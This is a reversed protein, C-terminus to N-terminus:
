RRKRKSSKGAGKTSKSPPRKEDKPAFPITPPANELSALQPVEAISNQKFQILVPAFGTPVHFAFDIYKVPSRDEFDSYSVTIKDTLRTLKLTDQAQMYGLPYANVARGALPKENLGKQKCILRIQSPTFRGADKIERRRLGLRLIILSHGSKTPAPNGDTTNLGDPAFWAAVNNPDQRRQPLEIANQATVVPIGASAKCRNLFAQDLFDPHLVAFSKTGSFTGRSVASFWGTAFGDANFLVKQPQGPNPRAPQFRQYPYKNPLPAMALATLLLGALVLGLLIGCVARGIRDALDPLAVPRRTIQGAIVHLVVFAVLFLVAFAITQAWPVVIAPLSDGRSVILGALLEFYAFAVFGACLTTIFAVFANVFRGKLFQLLACILIVAVVALNAMAM